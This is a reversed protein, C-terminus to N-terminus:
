RAALTAAIAITKHQSIQKALPRNAPHPAAPQKSAAPVPLRAPAVIKAPTSAALPTGAIALGVQVLRTALRMQSLQAPWAVGTVSEYWGLVPPKGSAHWLDHLTCDLRSGLVAPGLVALIRRCQDSGLVDGFGIVRSLYSKVASRYGLEHAWRDLKWGRSALELRCWFPNIEESKKPLPRPM